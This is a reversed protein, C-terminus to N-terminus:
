TQALAVGAEATGSRGIESWWEEAKEADWETAAACAALAKALAKVEPYRDDPKKALCRLVVQDLDAPVEPRLQSPPVVPDRTHSMMVEFPSGGRFPPQGTLAFYMMGGLAYIDARAGLSRDGM